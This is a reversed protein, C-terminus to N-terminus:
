FHYIYNFAINSVKFDGNDLSSSNEYGLTIEHEKNMFGIGGGYVFSHQAYSFSPFLKDGADLYVVFRDNIPYQARLKLSISSTNEGSIHSNSYEGMIKAYQLFQYGAIISPAISTGSGTSGGDISKLHVSNLGAGVFWGSAASKNAFAPLTYILSCAILMKIIIKMEQYGEYANLM